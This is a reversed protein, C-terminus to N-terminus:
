QNIIVMSKNPGDGALAAESWLLRRPYHYRWNSQGELWGITVGKCCSRVSHAVDRAAQGASYSDFAPLINLPCRIRWKNYVYKRCDAGSYYIQM